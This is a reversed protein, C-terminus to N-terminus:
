WMFRGVSGDAYEFTRYFFLYFQLINLLMYFLFSVGYRRPETPRGHVYMLVFPVLFYRFELLPSLCTQLVVGFLLASFLAKSSFAFLDALGTLCFAFFPVLAFRSWSSRLLIRRMVYFSFHRNDALLFPHVVFSDKLCWFSFVCMLLFLKWSKRVVSFQRQLSTEGLLMGQCFAAFYLLQSFHLVTEHHAKDGVVVSGNHWLWAVFSVFIVCHPWFKRLYIPSRRVAFVSFSTHERQLFFDQVVLGFCTVAMWIVNNQRFLIACIWFVGGLFMRRKETMWTAWMVFMLSGSDTYYLHFFFFLPPLLLIQFTRLAATVFTGPGKHSAGVRSESLVFLGHAAVAIGVVFALQLQRVVFLTCPLALMRIVAASLLYLGPFTTIKDDWGAHLFSSCYRETQRFHFQEDMYPEPQAEQMLLSNFVFLSAFLIGNTIWLYRRKDSKTLTM